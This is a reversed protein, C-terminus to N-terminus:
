KNGGISFKSFAVTYSIDYRRFSKLGEVWEFPSDTGRERSSFMIKHSVKRLNFKIWLSHTRDNHKRSIHLEDQPILSSYNRYIDYIKLGADFGDFKHNYSFNLKNEDYGRDMYSTAYSGDFLTLNDASGYEYSFSYSGKKRNKKYLIRVSNIEIDFETFYKNYFHTERLLIFSIQNKRNIIPRQYKIAFKSLNFYCQYSVDQIMDFYQHVFDGDDYERLFINDIYSYEFKVYQYNGIPQNIKFYIGYNSKEELDIYESVKLSLDFKTKRKFLDLSKKFRTNLKVYYSEVSYKNLFLDGSRSIENESLKMPNSDHGFAVTNSVSLGQSFSSSILLFLFFLHM